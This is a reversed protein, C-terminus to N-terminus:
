SVRVRLTKGKEEVFGNNNNMRLSPHASKISIKGNSPAVDRTALSDDYISLLLSCIRVRIRGTREIPRRM